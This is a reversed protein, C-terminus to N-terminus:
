KNKIGPYMWAEVACGGEGGSKLKVFSFVVRVRFRVLFYLVGGGVVVIELLWRTPEEETDDPM